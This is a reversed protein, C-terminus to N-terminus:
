LDDLELGKGHDPVGAVLGPQEFDWRAQGQANGVIERPM